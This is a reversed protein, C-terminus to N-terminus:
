GHIQRAARAQARGVADSVVADKSLREAQSAVTTRQFLEVLSIERGFERGLAARLKVLLLSHGGLDFFNDHLGVRTINLAERWIAAVQRESASMLVEDASSDRSGALDQPAPLAKRDIKGNPTLPLADLTAFQNPLMYEPLLERLSTRAAEADFNEVGGEAVVYAVLRQDGPTDERVIVVCDDVGEQAALATEIEGLEIRYGRVKV